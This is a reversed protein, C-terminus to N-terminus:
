YADGLLHRNGIRVNRLGAQQAAALCKKVHDKSTTPLDKMYFHPSFGLLSYPIDPNLSAIYQAIRSIEEEDVYGPILLTSAILFPPEPRLPTYQALREFNSLTWRNSVGCLAMHVEDHWAKLDVKVCGGSDLSLKAAKELLRPNVSGNTEWCIRLIKDPQKERAIKSAKLAYLIQPTPDGGFYCICATEDNVRSSIADTKLYGPLTSEERYHWNQCFLCNFTCSKFFVALNKYGYETGKAYSYQPYGCGTGGPCVGDAVCNTPLRDYYSSFHGEQPRGGSLKGEENIRTGCYGRGGEPIWCQNVCLPCPLGETAKPPHPPLNFAEHVHAHLRVVHPKVKEFHNRICDACIDLPSSILLSETHCHLCTAM